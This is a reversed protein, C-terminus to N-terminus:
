EHIKIYDQIEGDTVTINKDDISSYQLAVYNIDALDKEQHYFPGEHELACRADPYLLRLADDVDAARAVLAPDPVPAPAPSM